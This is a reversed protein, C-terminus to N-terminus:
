NQSAQSTRLASPSVVLEKGCRVCRASTGIIECAPDKSVVARRCKPCTYGAIAPAFDYQPGVYACIMHHFVPFLELAACGCAPCVSQGAEVQM